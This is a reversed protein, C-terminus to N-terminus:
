APRRRTVRRDYGNGPGLLTLVLDRRLWARPRETDSGWWPATSRDQNIGGPQPRLVGHRGGGAAFPHGAVPIGTGGLRGNHVSSFVAVRVGM